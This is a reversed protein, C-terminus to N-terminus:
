ASHQQRRRQSAPKPNIAVLTVLDPTIAVSRVKPPYHYRGELDPGTTNFGSYYSVSCLAGVITGSETIGEIGGFYANLGVEFDTIAGSGWAQPSALDTSLGFPWYSRPKGGRYRRSIQQNWLACTEAPLYPGAGRTGAHTTAFEGAGATDSTLDVVKIGLLDVAASMLPLLNTVALAQIDSAITTCVANDPATGSWLFHLRTSVDMDNSLSFDTTVRLVNPYSPLPPM